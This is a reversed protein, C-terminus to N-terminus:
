KIVECPVVHICPGTDICCPKLGDKRVFKM